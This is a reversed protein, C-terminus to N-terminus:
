ASMKKASFEIETKQLSIMYPIESSGPSLESYMYFKYAGTLQQVIELVAESKNNIRNGPFLM